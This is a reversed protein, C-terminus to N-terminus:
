QFLKWPLKSTRPNNRCDLHNLLLVYMCVNKCAKIKNNIRLLNGM